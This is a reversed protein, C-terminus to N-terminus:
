GIPKGALESARQQLRGVFDAHEQSAIGKQVTALAAAINGSLLAAADIWLGPFAESKFIGESPALPVYKGDRLVLYDIAGDLTRWLIYERIGSRAYLELKDNSDYSAFSAAVEAALDIEGAVYGDARIVATGGSTPLIFLSVDPQPM